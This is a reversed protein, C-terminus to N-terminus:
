GRTPSRDRSGAPGPRTRTAQATPTSLVASAPDITLSLNFTEDPEATNDGLAQGVRTPEDDAVNLSGVLTAELAAQAPDQQAHWEPRNSRSRDHSGNREWGAPPQSYGAGPSRGHPQDPM